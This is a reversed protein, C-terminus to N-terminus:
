YLKYWWSWQSANHITVLVGSISHSLVLCSPQSDSLPKLLLLTNMMMITKGGNDNDDDNNLMMKVMMMIWWCSPTWPTVWGRRGDCEWTSSDSRWTLWHILLQNTNYWQIAHTTSKQQTALWHHSVMAMMAMRRRKVACAPARGAGHCVSLFAQKWTKERWLIM